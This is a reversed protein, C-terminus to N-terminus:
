QQVLVVTNGEPDAIPAITPGNPVDFPESLVVAVTRPALLTVATPWAFGLETMVHRTDMAVGFHKPDIDGLLVDQPVEVWTPGYPPTLATEWAASSRELLTFRFGRAQCREQLTTHGGAM